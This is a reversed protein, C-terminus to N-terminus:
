NSPRQAYPVAVQRRYKAPALEAPNHKAWATWEPLGADVLELLSCMAESEFADVEEQTAFTV